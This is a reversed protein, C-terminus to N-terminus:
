KAPDPKSELLKLLTQLRADIHSIMADRAAEPNRQELGELIRLHEDFAARLNEPTGTIRCFGQVLRRHRLIDKRLFENGSSEAVVDHFHLDFSIARGPWQADVTATDLQNAEARLAGMRETTVLRAALAAAAGELIKRMEYLERVSQANFEVVRSKGNPLAELLGDAALRRLAEHVPTRSVQMQRALAVENFETGPPVGGMLIIELLNQYVGSVLSVKQIPKAVSLTSPDNQTTLSDILASKIDAHLMRSAANIQFLTEDTLGARLFKKWSTSPCTAEVSIDSNLL